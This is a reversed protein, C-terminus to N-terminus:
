RNILGDSNNDTKATFHHDNQNATNKLQKPETETHFFGFQSGIKNVKFVLDCSWDESYLCVNWHNSSFTFLESDFRKEQLCKKLAAVIIKM